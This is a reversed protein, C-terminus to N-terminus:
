DESNQGAGNLETKDLFKSFWLNDAADRMQLEEMRPVVDPHCRMLMDRLIDRETGCRANETMEMFRRALVDLAQGDTWGVPNADLLEAALRGMEEEDLTGRERFRRKWLRVNEPLVDDYILIFHSAKCDGLPGGKELDRIAEVRDDNYYGIAYDEIYTEM